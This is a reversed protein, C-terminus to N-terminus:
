LHEDNDDEPEPATDAGPSDQKGKDESKRGGAPFDWNEIKAFLKTRPLGDKKEYTESLLQASNITIADGKKFYTSINKANTEWAVVDLFVAHDKDQGDFAIANNLVLKGSNTTRLEMDRVFRGEGHIYCRM